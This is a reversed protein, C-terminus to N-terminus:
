SIDKTHQCKFEAIFDNVMWNDFDKGLHTDEAISKFEFIIDEITLVSM